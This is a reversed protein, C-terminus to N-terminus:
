KTDWFDFYHLLPLSFGMTWVVSPLIFEGISDYRSVVFFGYLAYIGVLLLIGLILLFWNFGVGSVVVVVLLSELLSLLGLSLVKAAM